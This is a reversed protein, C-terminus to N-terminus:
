KKQEKRIFKYLLKATQSNGLIESLQTENMEVLENIDKVKNLLFRYNKSNVGSMKQIFDQPGISYKLSTSVDDSDLGVAM